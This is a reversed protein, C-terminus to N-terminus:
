KRTGPKSSWENVSSCRTQECNQSNCILPLSYTCTWTHVYIQLENPYMDFSIIVNTRHLSGNISQMANIFKSERYVTQTDLKPHLLKVQIKVKRISILITISKATQETKLKNPHPPSM